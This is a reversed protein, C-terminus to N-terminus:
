RPRLGFCHPFLVEYNRDCEEGSKKEWEEATDRRFSNKGGILPLNERREKKKREKRSSSNSDSYPRGQVM